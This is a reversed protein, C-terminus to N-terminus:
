EENKTKTNLTNYVLTAVQGRTLPEGVNANMNLTMDLNNAMGIQGYPWSIGFDGDTYGLIRLMMTVAEEFTVNNDPKFTSDTYGECIGNEVAVKVYPASWHKYTVDSFPSVKLSTAVSNKASSSNVAVKAFEARTVYDNLRMNGDPDGAMIKLESLLNMVDTEGQAFSTINVSFLMISVILASIIKKM